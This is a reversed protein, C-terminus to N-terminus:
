RLQALGRGLDERNMVPTITVRAKLDMFAPEAIMPIDSADKLDFFLYATRCGDEATFYSAEPKSRETLKEMIKPLSGDTIARNGSETDMQLKLMCRMQM